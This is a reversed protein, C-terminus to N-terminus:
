PWLPFLDTCQERLVDRASDYWSDTLKYLGVTFLRRNWFTKKLTAKFNLVSVDMASVYLYLTVLKPSNRLLSTIGEATLSKVFMVVHFLRGHTSVSTM